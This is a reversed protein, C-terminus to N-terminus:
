ATVTVAEKQTQDHENEGYHYVLEVAAPLHM